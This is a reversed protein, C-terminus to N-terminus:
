YIGRRRRLAMVLEHPLEDVVRHVDILAEVVTETNLDDRDFMHDNSLRHWVERQLLSRLRYLPQYEDEMSYRLKQCNRMEEESHTGSVGCYFCEGVCSGTHVERNEHEQGCYECVTQCADAIILTEPRRHQCVQCFTYESQRPSKIWRTWPRSQDIRSPMRHGKANTVEVMVPAITNASRYIERSLDEGSMSMAETKTIDTGGYM